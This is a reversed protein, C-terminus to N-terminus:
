VEVAACPGEHGKFRTCYYGATAYTKACEIYGIATNGPWSNIDSLSRTVTAPCPLENKDPEYGTFCIRWASRLEQWEPHEDCLECEGPAHLIRQDCHPFQRILDMEVSPPTYKHFM